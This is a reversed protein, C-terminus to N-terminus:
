DNDFVIKRCWIVGTKRWIQPGQPKWSGYIWMKEENDQQLTPADTESTRHATIPSYISIKHHISVPESRPPPCHTVLIAPNSLFGQPCIKTARRRTAHLREDKKTSIKIEARWFPCLQTLATWHQPSNGRTKPWLKRACFAYLWDMGAVNASYSKIRDDHLWTPRAPVVLHIVFFFIGWSQANHESVVPRSWSKQLSLRGLLIERNTQLSPRM